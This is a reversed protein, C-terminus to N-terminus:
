NQSTGVPIILKFSFNRGMNYVGTRGTAYNEPLYKLRNLHDQYVADTLNNVTLYISCRTKGQWMIDSGAGLNLLFYSPTQTETGFAWYYHNQTFMYTAGVLFYAHRLIKGKKAFDFRLSSQIKPAPIMPLNQTSDPQNKQVARVYSFSNEFHIWDYPHPHLDFRIEGGYLHANGAIYKFTQYGESLSDGGYVSNLKSTFIYNDISNDFVSLESSLHETSLGLAYDTQFSSESKLASNGIEYRMSGEHIGNSGLESINPARFGKSINLKTYIHSTIQWTAGLSGSVGTFKSTFASFRHENANTPGDVPQEDSNLYLDRGQESRIDYRLGGSLDFPGASKKVIAFLGADVLQYEPVLYEKGKNSSHQNMGNFGISVNFDQWEPLNLNVDYNWTNLLFFLATENPDLVNDFEKRQNQQFGVTTKLSSNGLIINNNLVIKQHAIKQFPMFPSYSKFDSSSAIASGETSDSLVVPKLFRGSISDREGEIMGPNLYYTSFTLNSYGWSKNLGVLAEAAHEKFGSNFVYGDYKNQYDHAKKNSYRINWILGKQNGAMNLSYGVLGNNTQYNLAANGSFSGDPLTPASLLNIVGAMADSGYALSAPGKLIEAHDVANEDIEIGHEDGWQQGEQRIGDNIVVVRNYGLGRIVPKSIAVGTTVQSIGPQKALADIINTSATQLLVAKPVIAIPTPTRKQEAAKSMGTVVVDNLETAVYEMEFNHNITNSLDIQEILTRYGLLSVQVLLKTKPLNDIHFTGDENTTTGIKLDPFYIAVFPLQENTKKDSVKGSLSTKTSEADVNTVLSIILILFIYIRKM